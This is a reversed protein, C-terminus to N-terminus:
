KRRVVLTTQGSVGIVVVESGTPIPEKDDTVADREVYAGQLMLHVKGEGKREAPILLQVKGSVGIANRNDINGDTRLKMVFRYLLALLLMAAGGSLTAVVITLILNAGDMAVGVWGFMVFFAIMGRVTFIKLGEFGASDVVDSVENSGFVGEPLEEPVDDPLENPIEDPLEEGVEADSFGAGIFMMVTQILLILTAPVAICTFIQGALSMSMFWDIIFM